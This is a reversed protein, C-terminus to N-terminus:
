TWSQILKNKVTLAVLGAYDIVEVGTALEAVSLGRVALHDQLVFFQCDRLRQSLAMALRGQGSLALVANELFVVDDGAALRELLSGDKLSQSVLHLM